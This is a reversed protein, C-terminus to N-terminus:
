EALPMLVGFVNDDSTVAHNNTVSTRADKIVVAKPVINLGGGIGPSVPRGFQYGAKNATITDGQLIVTATVNVYFGGGLATGSRGGIGGSGAASENGAVLTDVVTLTSHTEVEIAGGQGPGGNANAGGAGGQARNELIKSGQVRANGRSSVNIAGAGAIGGVGNPGGTGGLSVNRCFTGRLITTRGAFTCTVAGGAANGGMDAGADGLAVGGQAQNSDFHSDEVVTTGAFTILGGGAGQSGTGTNGPSGGLAKNSIFRCEQVQLAGGTLNAIGGGIGSGVFYPGLKGKNGAGGEAQNGAITCRSITASGLKVNAIAGGGGVGVLGVTVVSTGNSGGIARNSTFQCDHVSLTGENEIAGGLALGISYIGVTAKGWNGGIARNGDFSSDSIDAVGGHANSVAGGAAGGLNLGSFDRDFGVVSNNRFTSQCVTLKGANYIAGGRAVSNLTGTAQNDAFVMRSLVLRAGFNVIGGGHTPTKGNIITLGTMAVDVHLGTVFFVRTAGGGSIKIQDNGPGDITLNHLIRLPSCLTITGRLSPDFRIHDPGPHRNADQIAQRLSGPGSDNLNTVTIDKPIRGFQPFWAQIERSGSLFFMLLIVAQRRPSFTVFALYRIM